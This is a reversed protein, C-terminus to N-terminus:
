PHLYGCECYKNIGFMHWFIRVIKYIFGLFGDKHCFHGCDEEFDFNCQKCKNDENPYTHGGSYVMSADYGCRTCIKISRCEDKAWSADREHQEYDHGYAEVINTWYFNEGCRSCYHREYGRNTCSAVSTEVAEIHGLAPKAEDFEFDFSTRCDTCYTRYHAGKTCSAEIYTGTLLKGCFGCNRQKEETAAASATFVVAAVLVLMALVVSIVKKM